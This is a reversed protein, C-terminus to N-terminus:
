QKILKGFDKHDNIRISYFYFGSPFDSTNFSLSLNKDQKKSNIIEMQKGTVDYIEIVVNGTEPASIDFTVENIFPNPHTKISLNNTAAPNNISTMVMGLTGDPQINQAYIDRGTSREDEWAAVWQGFSYPAMVTHLKSSQYTSMDIFEEEWVFNGNDDLMVAQIKSDVVNGFEYAEYVCISKDNVGGSMPLSYDNNSLAILQKGDNTWKRNGNVDFKQAYLGRQSQNLDQESFYVVIEQSMELYVATPYMHNRQMSTSVVVGNAPMELEGMGSMYQVWCNFHSGEDNGYWTFLIGGNNYQTAELSVVAGSPVPAYIEKDEPLIFNGNEDLQQLYLGRNPAWFPGTEEHWIFYVHDSDTPFLKPATLSIGPKSVVLGEDGWLLEGAPSIKQLHIEDESPWAFVINGGHLACVVPSPEFSANNSLQVGDPGWPFDGNPSIRYGVPNNDGNRIDQFTILAYNEPDVALDWDTLYSMQPHDSILMGNDNFFPYGDKDLRQLRVNYNGSENSFWSIYYSGDSCVAIKPLVQEGSMNSLQSNMMPDSAWQAAAFQISLLLVPVLFFFKTKM